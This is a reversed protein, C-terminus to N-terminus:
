EAAAAGAAPQHHGAGCRHAPELLGSRDLHQDRLDPPAPHPPRLRRGPPVQAQENRGQYYPMITPDLQQYQKLAQGVGAVNGHGFIGFTGPILRERFDQGGVSDVTYQKSLYEVVAQAVTM